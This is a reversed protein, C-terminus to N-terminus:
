RRQCLTPAIPQLIFATASLEQLEDIKDLLHCSVEDRLPHRPEAHAIDIQLLCERPGASRTTLIYVFDGGRHGQAMPRASDAYRDLIRTRLRHIALERPLSQEVRDFISMARHSARLNAGAFLLTTAFRRTWSRELSSNEFRFSFATCQFFKAALDVVLIRALAIRASSQNESGDTQM